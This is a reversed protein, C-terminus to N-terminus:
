DVIYDITVTSTDPVMRQTLGTKMARERVDQMILESLCVNRLVNLLNCCFDRGSSTPESDIGTRGELKHSWTIIAPCVAEPFGAHCAHLSEPLTRANAHVHNALYFTDDAFFISHKQDFIDSIQYSLSLSLWSLPIPQIVTGTRKGHTVIMAELSFTARQQRRKRKHVPEQRHCTLRAIFSVTVRSSVPFM